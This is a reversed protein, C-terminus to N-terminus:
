KFKVEVSYRADIAKIIPEYIEKVMNLAIENAEQGNKVTDFKTELKNRLEKEIMNYDSVTMEIDGRAFLGEKVEDIMIKDPDIEIIQLEANEIQIIIMKNAKDDIVDARSIKDLNVVFYGRGSYSVKQTKKLFDFDLKEILRDSLEVSVTAEQSSVILSRREEQKGVIVEAFDITVGSDELKISDLDVQHLGDEYGKSVAQKENAYYWILVGLIALGLTVCIINLVKKRM